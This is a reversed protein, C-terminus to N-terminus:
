KLEKLQYIRLNGLFKSSGGGLVKKEILEEPYGIGMFPAYEKKIASDYDLLYNIHNQKLYDLMNSHKIADFASNNVVGDLNYIHKESYFAYIGANFSGVKQNNSVNEKLWFAGQYMEKQWPYFGIKWFLVGSTIFFIVMILNVLGFTIKRFSVKYFIMSFGIAFAFGAPTFYWPRPYWRIGAHVIIMGLSSILLLWMFIKYNRVEDFQKDRIIVIIIIIWLALGVIFPVGVPDGRMWLSFNFFQKVGEGIFNIVSADPNTLLFRQYIAYPVAVGSIQMFSGFTFYNWIFWPSITISAIIGSLIVHKINKSFGWKIVAYGYFAIIYLVTDSRALFLLGATIGVIIAWKIRSINEIWILFMWLFLSFCLMELATELGNTTQFIVSPNIAYYLVALLGIEKRQSFRYVIKYLFLFTFFEFISAVTLSLNVQLDILSSYFSFIPLIAILWLPHFGNTLNINDFSVIGNQSYNHAIVFYYYSDDPLNKEVLVSPPQWAITLRVFFGILFIVIICVNIFKESGKNNNM